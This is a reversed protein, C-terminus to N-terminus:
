KWDELGLSEIPTELTEPVRPAETTEPKAEVPRVHIKGSVVNVVEVTQGRDIVMGLSVADLRMGDIEVLGSPLMDTKAIGVKGIIAERRQREEADRQAEAEHDITLMRRGVATRPWIRLGLSIVAPVVIASGVLIISGAALSHLFGIVIAAILAAAAGIGLLGGSPIFLELVLLAFFLLLMGVAHILTMRDNYYAPSAAVSEWTIDTAVLLHDFDRRGRILQDV